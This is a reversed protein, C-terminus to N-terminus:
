ETVFNQVARKLDAALENLKETSEAITDMTATTEETTASVQEANASTEEIFTAVSDILGVIKDSTAVEENTINVIEDIDLVTNDVAEKINKLAQGAKEVIVVGEGVEAESEKTAVVTKSSADKIKGVVTSVKNAGATSEEALKRVEEAVVAFGKGADGARAAEISANLALLNTQDAIDTIMSTITTIEQAYTDLSTIFQKTEATKMKINNMKNVVELVTQSGDEATKLTSQSNEHASLAKSQAIQTLSSLELLAKSVEITTQNGTNAKEALEQTSLNVEGVAATVEETSASTQETSAAVEVASHNIMKFMENLGSMLGNFAASLQGLEDDSTLDIKKTLDVQEGLVQDFSEVMHQIPGIVHRRLGYGVFAIMIVLNIILTFYTQLMTNVREGLFDFLGLDFIFMQLYAIPAGLILSFVSGLLIFLSIKKGLKWKASRKVQLKNFFRNKKM